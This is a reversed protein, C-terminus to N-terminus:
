WLFLKEDDDDNDDDDDDNDNDNIIGNSSSGKPFAKNGHWFGNIFHVVFVVFLKKIVFAIDFIQVSSQLQLHEQM